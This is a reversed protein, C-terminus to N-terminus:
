WTHGNVFVAVIRKWQQDTFSTVSDHVEFLVKEGNYSLRHEVVVKGRDNPSTGNNTGANQQNLVQYAGEQLFPKANGLSLNGTLVSGPIIIVPM